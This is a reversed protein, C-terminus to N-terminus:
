LWDPDYDISGTSEYRRAWDDDGHYSDLFALDMDDYEYFEEASPGEKEPDELNYLISEKKNTL